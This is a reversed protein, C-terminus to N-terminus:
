HRRKRRVPRPEDRQGRTALAPNDMCYGGVGSTTAMCQPYTEFECHMIGGGGGGEGGGGSGYSCVPFDRAHAAPLDFAIMAGAAAIACVMLMIQRM